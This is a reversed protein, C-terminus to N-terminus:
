AEGEPKDPAPAAVAEVPKARKKKAVPKKRRKARAKPLQAEQLM